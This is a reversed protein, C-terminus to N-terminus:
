PERAGVRHLRQALEVVLEGPEVAGAGVRRPGVLDHHEGVVTLRLPGREQLAVAVAEGVEDVTM